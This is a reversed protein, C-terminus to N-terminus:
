FWDM